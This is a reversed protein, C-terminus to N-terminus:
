RAAGSQQVLGRNNQASTFNTIINGSFTFDDPRNFTLTRQNDDPTDFNNVFTVNGVFSGAEPTIGDGFILENCGIFTGGTYTNTGTLTMSGPNFNNAGM